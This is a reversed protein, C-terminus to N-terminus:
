LTATNTASFIISSSPRLINIPISVLLTVNARKYRRGELFLAPDLLSSYPSGSIKSHRRTAYAQCIDDSGEGQRFSTARGYGEVRPQPDQMM